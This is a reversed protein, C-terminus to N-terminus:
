SVIEYVRKVVFGKETTSLELSFEAWGGECLLLVSFLKKDGLLIGKTDDSVPVFHHLCKKFQKLKAAPYGLYVGCINERILDDSQPLVTRKDKLVCAAFDNVAVQMAPPLSNPGAVSANVLLM